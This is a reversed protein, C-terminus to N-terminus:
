LMRAPRQAVERAQGNEKRARKADRRGVRSLLGCHGPARLESECCEFARQAPKISEGGVATARLLQRLVESGAEGTFVGGEEVQAALAVGNDGAAPGGAVNGAADVENGLM